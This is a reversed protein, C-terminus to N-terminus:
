PRTIIMGWHVPFREKGCRLCRLFRYSGDENSAIEWRHRFRLRCLLSSAMPSQDSMALLSGVLVARLAPAHRLVRTSYRVQELRPMLDLEARFERQYRERCPPPVFRIALGLIRLALRSPRVQKM